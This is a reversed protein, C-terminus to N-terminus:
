FPIDAEFNNGLPPAFSNQTPLSGSARAPVPQQQQEIAPKATGDEEKSSLLHVSNAKLKWGRREEGSNRDTWKEEIMRGSFGVMQGKRVFNGLIEAQKGWVEVNFWDTEDKDRRVAVSIKAVSTGSEFYRVEPDKGARGAISITNM